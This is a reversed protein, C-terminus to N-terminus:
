GLSPAEPLQAGSHTVPSVAMALLVEQVGRALLFQGKAESPFVSISHKSYIGTIRLAPPLPTPPAQRSVALPLRVSSILKFGLVVGLWFFGLQQLQQEQLEQEQPHM